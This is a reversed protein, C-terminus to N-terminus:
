AWHKCFYAAQVPINTTGISSLGATLDTPRGCHYKPLTSKLLTERDWPWTDVKCVPISALNQM